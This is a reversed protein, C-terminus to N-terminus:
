DDSNDPDALVLFTLMMGTNGLPMAEEWLRDCYPRDYWVDAEVTGEATPISGIGSNKLLKATPTNSPIATDQSIFAMNKAKMSDSHFAWM